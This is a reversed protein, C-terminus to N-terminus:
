QFIEEFNVELSNLCIINEKVIDIAEKEIINNKSCIAILRKRCEIVNEPSIDIGYITKLCDLNSHYKKKNKLVEVLINGNGCAPDLFTKSPNEWESEPISSLIEQVLNKPTYVEGLDKVRKKSKVISESM